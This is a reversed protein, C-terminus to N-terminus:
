RRVFGPICRRNRRSGLLVRIISSGLWGSFFKQQRKRQSSSNRGGTRQSNPEHIPALFGTHVPLLQAATVPSSKGCALRLPAFAGRATFAPFLHANPALGLCPFWSGSY